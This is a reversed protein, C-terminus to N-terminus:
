VTECAAGSGNYGGLGAGGERRAHLGSASRVPKTVDVRRYATTAM